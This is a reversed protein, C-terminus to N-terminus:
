PNCLDSGCDCMCDNSAAACTMDCAFYCSSGQNTCGNYCVNLCRLENRFCQQECETLSMQLAEPQMTLANMDCGDGDQAPVEVSNVVANATTSTADAAGAFVMPTLLICTLIATVSLLFSSNRTM